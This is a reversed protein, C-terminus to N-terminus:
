SISREQGSREYEKELDRLHKEYQKNLRRLALACSKDLAIKHQPTSCNKTSFHDRRPSRVSCFDLIEQAKDNKTSLSFCVPANSMKSFESCIIERIKDEPLSIFEPRKKQSEIFASLIDKDKCGPAIYETHVEDDAHIALIWALDDLNRNSIGKEFVSIIDVGQKAAVDLVIDKLDDRLTEPDPPLFLQPDFEQSTPYPNRQLEKLLINGSRLYFDNMRDSKVHAWLHRDGDGYFRHVQKEFEDLRATYTIFHAKLTPNANIITDVARNVIPRYPEFAKKGYVWDQKAPLQDMLRILVDRHEPATERVGPLIYERLIKTRLISEESGILKNVIVSKSSDIANLPLMDKRRPIKQDEIISFHVHANDTNTHIAGTWICHGPDLHSKEILNLLAARSVEKIKYLDPSGSGFLGLDKLFENDFSIIGRYLPCGKKQSDNFQDKIRRVNIESLHDISATFLGDSKEDNKMYDMYGSYLPDSDRENNINTNEFAEPRNMYDLYGGFSSATSSTLVFDCMMTVAPTIKGM